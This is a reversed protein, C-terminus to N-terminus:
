VGAAPVVVSVLSPTGVYVSSVGIGLTPSRKRREQSVMAQISCRLTTAQWILKSTGFSVPLLRGNSVTRGEEKNLEICYLGKVPVGLAEVLDSASSVTAFSLDRQAPQNHTAM